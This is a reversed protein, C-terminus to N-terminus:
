NVMPRGRAAPVPTVRNPFLVESLIRENWGQVSVLESTYSEGGVSDVSKLSISASPSRSIRRKM